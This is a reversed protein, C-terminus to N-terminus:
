NKNPSLSLADDPYDITLAFKKLLNVDANM